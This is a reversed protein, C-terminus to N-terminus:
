EDGRRLGPGCAFASFLRRLDRGGGPHRHPAPTPTASL